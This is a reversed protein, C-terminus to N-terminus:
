GRSFFEPEPDQLEQATAMLAAISANQSGLVVLREREPQGVSQEAAELQEFLIQFEDM